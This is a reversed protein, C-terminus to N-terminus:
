PTPSRPQLGAARYVADIVEMNKVADDPGTLVPTGTRIADVFARMQYWYTSEGRVRMHKSRMQTSTSIQQTVGPFSFRTPALPDRVRARGSHPKLTVRNFYGPQTPNLVKLLAKNGSVRIDIM